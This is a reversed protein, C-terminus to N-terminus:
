NAESAVQAHNLVAVLAVGGLVNGLLTPVLYEILFTGFSLAGTTVLAAVEVSGAVVHTLGGLGVLYTIIVIVAVRGSEAAPLLWVMLAILWGAFIGRVFRSSADGAFAAQGILSVQDRVAASLAPTNMLAWAVIFAGVVNAVLVIAWLRAVRWFTERDRRTLLPLIPTLTNETFLQQRALVVIVFGVTYGFSTILPRWPEDPLDAALLAMALVSFGMSLGAALGSFALASPTRSL